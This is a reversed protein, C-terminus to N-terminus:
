DSHRDGKTDDNGEMEKKMAERYKKALDLLGPNVVINFSEWEQLADKGISITPLTKKIEEAYHKIDIATKNDVFPVPGYIASTLILSAFMSMNVEMGIEYSQEDFELTM